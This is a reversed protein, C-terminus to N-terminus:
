TASRAAPRRISSAAFDWECDPPIAVYRKEGPRGGDLMVIRLLGAKQLDQAAAIDRQGYAGSFSGRFADGRVIPQLVRRESITAM